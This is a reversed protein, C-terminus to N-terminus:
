CRFSVRLRSTELDSSLWNKLNSVYLKWTKRTLSPSERHINVKKLLLRKTLCLRSSFIKKWNIKKSSKNCILFMVCTLNKDKSTLKSNNMWVIFKRKSKPDFIGIKMLPGIRKRRKRPSKPTTWTSRIKPQHRILSSLKYIKFSHSKEIWSSNSKRVEKCFCNLRCSSIKSKTLSKKFRRLM